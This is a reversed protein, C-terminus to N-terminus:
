YKKQLNNMMVVVKFNKEHIIFDISERGLQKKQLFFLHVMKDQFNILNSVNSFKTFKRTLITMCFDHM